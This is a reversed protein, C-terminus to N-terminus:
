PRLALERPPSLEYQMVPDFGMLVSWKHVEVINHCLVKALVENAQAIDTKSRIADGFKSKMMNVASEVNSRRHYHHDFEQENFRFYHYMQAWASNDREGPIRTNSKFPIYPVVGALMALHINKHSLYAKDAAIAAPDFYKLTRELLPIFLDTDHVDYGTICVATIIKTRAGCTFHCKVWERNRIEKDWRKNYWQIFRSTSFGTSDTLVQTDLGRMPMASAYVLDMLIHTIEPEQMYKCVTTFRPTQEICGELEAKRLGGEARRLSYLSHVKHVIAFVMDAMAIRPRGFSYQPEPIGSCLEALLKEFVLQETRQALDYATYNRGYKPKGYVKPDIFTPSWPDSHDRSMSHLAADQPSFRPWGYAVPSGSRERTAIRSAQAYSFESPESPHLDKQAQADTVWSEYIADSLDKAAQADFIVRDKSRPGAVRSGEEPLEPKPKAPVPTPAPGSPFDDGDGDDSDDSEGQGDSHGHRVTPTGEPPFFMPLEGQTWQATKPKRTPPPTGAVRRKRNAAVATFDRPTNSSVSDLDLPLQNPSVWRRNPVLRRSSAPKYRIPAPTGAVPTETTAAQPFLTPKTNQNRSSEM